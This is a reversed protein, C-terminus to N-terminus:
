PGAPLNSQSSTRGHSTPLRANSFRMRWRLSAPKRRKKRLEALEKKEASTLRSASGNEDTEAQAMWNRLCSESIGLETALGSVPKSGQRALGVARRRFEPPHPAPVAVDKRTVWPWRLVPTRAVPVLETMGWGHLLQVGYKDAFTRMVSPPLAAGGVVCTRLHSIDQPNKELTSLLGSWITPVAAAFTPRVAAMMRPLPEPQLFRDPLLLDSGAMLVAYRLGWANAHFLPVIALM